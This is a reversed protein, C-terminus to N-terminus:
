DFIEEIVDAVGEFLLRGFSKRRKPRKPPAHYHGGLPLSNPDSPHGHPVHWDPKPARRRESSNRTKAVPLSKMKNLPAGCNGCALSHQERGRLTLATKAGCYCCTAIKTAPM